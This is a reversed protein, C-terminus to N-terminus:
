SRSKLEELVTEYAAITAALIISQVEGRGLWDSGDMSYLHKLTGELDELTCSVGTEMRRMIGQLEKAYSEQYTIDQWDSSAGM